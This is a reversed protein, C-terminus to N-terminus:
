ATSVGPLVQSLKFLMYTCLTGHVEASMTDQGEGKFGRSRVFGRSGPEQTVHNNISNQCM